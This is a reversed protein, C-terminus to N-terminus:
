KLPTFAAGGFRYNIGGKIVSVDQAAGIQDGAINFSGDGFTMWNYEVKASWNQTLAFEAGGGILWGVQNDTAAHASYGGPGTETHEFGGWVVGTKAYLLTRDLALGARLSIDALWTVETTDTYSGDYKYVASDELSGWSVTGELGLVVNRLQLNYGAQIGGLGGSPSSDTNCGKCDAWDWSSSGWGGGGHGGLYFGTWTFSPAYAVDDKYGGLDAANAVGGMGIMAAAAAFIALKRM